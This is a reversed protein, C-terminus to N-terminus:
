GVQVIMTTEFGNPYGAEALLQKAKTTDLPYLNELDENYLPNDKPM